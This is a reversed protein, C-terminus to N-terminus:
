CVWKRMIEALQEISEYATVSASLLGFARGSHKAVTALRTLKGIESAAKAAKASSKLAKGMRDAIVSQAGVMSSMSLMDSEPAHTFGGGGSDQRTLM